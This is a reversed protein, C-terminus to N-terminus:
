LLVNELAPMIKDAHKSTKAVAKLTELPFLKSQQLWFAIATLAAGKRGSIKRFNKAIAEKGTLCGSIDLSDDTILYTNDSINAKTKELGDNSTIILVDPSEIGTYNIEETSLIVEAVSFGTGVTIPYEGKKTSKLGSKMAAFALLEAASQIGEGASGAIIIKIQTQKDGLSVPLNSEDRTKATVHPMSDFLSTSKDPNLKQVKLQARTNKLTKEKFPIKNLEKIKKIGYAPCLGVIEVVSFGKTEFAEVLKDSFDGHAIIRSSYSAGAQYTLKCIDYPPIESEEPLKVSKFESSSLGSIQGGTMGYVMNNHIILTLAINQRSAELLHQLGITAGGDGQIAIVKKDSMGLGMSVGMALASARGHLGHITHCTLLPDLISNCGIDSVIVVDLPSLGMKELAKVINNTATQHGCGPCYPMQKKTRFNGTTM